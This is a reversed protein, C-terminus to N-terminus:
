QKWSRILAEVDDQYIGLRKEQDESHAICFAACKFQLDDALEFFVGSECCSVIASLVRETSFFELYDKTVEYKRMSGIWISVFNDIFHLVNVDQIFADNLYDSVYEHDFSDMLHYVMRWEYFDFLNNTALLNKIRNAFVKEIILLEELTLVRKYDRIQGNAALRGYGLELMNIVVAISPLADMSSDSILDTFLTLREASPIREIVDLMMHEAYSRSSTSLWGTAKRQDLYKMAEFLGRSLVIARDGSIDQIRAKIEELLEYSSGKRDQLRIFTSIAIDDYHYLLYQVDTSTYPLDDITM